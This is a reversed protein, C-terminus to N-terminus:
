EDTVVMNSEDWVRAIVEQNRELPGFLAEFEQEEDWREAQERVNSVQFLFSHNNGSPVRKLITKRSLRRPPRRFTLSLAEPDGQFKRELQDALHALYELRLSRARAHKASRTGQRAHLTSLVRRVEVVLSHNLATGRTLATLLCWRLGLMDDLNAFCRVMMKMCTGDFKASRGYRSMYVAQLLALAAEPQNQSLLRHSTAVTIHHKVIMRPNEWCLHYFHFLGLQLAETEAVAVDLALLRQFFYPMFTLRHRIERWETEILARAAGLGDSLLTAVVALEVHLARMTYEANKARSFCDLAEAMKGVHMYHAMQKDLAQYSDVAKSPTTERLTREFWTMTERTLPMENVEDIPFSRQDYGLLQQSWAAQTYKVKAAQLMQWFGVPSHELAFRRARLLAKFEKENMSVRWSREQGVTTLESIMDKDGREILAQMMHRYLVEDPIINYKDISRMLFDRIAGGSHAPYFELLIRDFVNAFQKYNKTLGLDHMEQLGLEVAEWDCRLAKAYVLLGKTRCSPALSYRTQMEKALAEADGYRGFEIYAKLVPNFLKETPLKGVRPLTSLLKKLQGNILEISRTKRWLGALYAGCIGCSRDYQLNRFLVFKATTLRRSEVLCRIVVDVLDEPLFFRHMYQTYLSAASEICGKKALLVLLTKWMSAPVKDIEELRRFLTRAIFVNDQKCNLYFLQVLLERRDFSLGQVTAPHTDLFLQAAEIPRDRDILGRIQQITSNPERTLRDGHHPEENEVSFSPRSRLNREEEEKKFSAMGMFEGAEAAEMMRALRGAAATADYHPASTQLARKNEVIREAVRVRRNVEYTMAAITCFSGVTSGALALKRLVRLANRSPVAPTGPSAQTMTGVTASYILNFVLPACVRSLAHLLGTAGLMQGVRDHPVHKTLSSQLTPSGMGGMATVIGSLTMMSGHRSLAYGAYGVFDFFVSLRILVIDLMDSGTNRHPTGDAPRHRFFRTILPLVIFLIVVKVSNVISVFISSEVNGWGFMYGLYIILIQVMGMTVGFVVTDIAALLIINRRLAPSAGRPGPFLPSPKGVAPALIALPALFNLPNLQKLSLRGHFLLSAEDEEERQSRREQHRKQAMHQQEKSLSEPVVLSIMLLYFSHLSLSTVFVVVSDGTTKILFAALFPGLAIGSFLAGHFYGFAVNRQETPTCDSAYSHVLAMMTTFSGGLGDFFAGLLLFNVSMTHPRTAVILTMTEGVVAMAASYAMLKTRGHHDSLLGLRPSVLASLIGSILSIYLQFGAALSQVEPIRCQSNEGDFIVPLYTFGPDGAAKEALYDRCVLNLVLNVKPVSLSGFGLTFLLVCPLLWWISPRRWWTLSHFRECVGEPFMEGEERDLTSSTGPPKLPAEDPTRTDVEAEEILVIEDEMAQEVSM